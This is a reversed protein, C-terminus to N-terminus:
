KCNQGGSVNRLREDRWALIGDTAAATANVLLVPRGTARIVREAATGLIVDLPRQRPRAMVILDPQWECASETIAHVPTGHRVSVRANHPAHAM